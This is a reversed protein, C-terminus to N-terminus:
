AKYTFGTRDKLDAIQRKLIDQLTQDDERGRLSSLTDEIADVMSRTDENNLIEIFTWAPITYNGTLRWAGGTRIAQYDRGDIRTTGAQRDRTISNLTAVPISSAGTIQRTTDILKKLTEAQKNM